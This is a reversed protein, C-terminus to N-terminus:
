GTTKSVSKKIVDINTIEGKEKRRNGPCTFGGGASFGLLDTPNRYGHGLSIFAVISLEQTSVQWSRGGDQSRYVNFHNAVIIGNNPDFFRFYSAFYPLPPIDIDLPIWHNGADTTKLIVSKESNISTGIVWGMDRNVFSLKSPRFKDSFSYIDKWTSGGDSTYLLAGSNSLQGLGFGYQCDIFSIDKTPRPKPYVQTWTQGGDGTCMIYDGQNPATAIVWGQQESIFDVERNSSMEEDRGVITFNRGGDKTLMLGGSIPGAGVDLPIWGVQPTIFKVETPTPRASRIQNIKQWDLGANATYFLDGNRTQLDSTLHHSKTPLPKSTLM